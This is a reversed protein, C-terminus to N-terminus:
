PLAEGETDADPLQFPVADRRVMLQERCVATIHLAAPIKGCIVRPNQMIQVAFRNFDCVFVPDTIGGIAKAAHRDAATREAACFTDSVREFVVIGLSQPNRM